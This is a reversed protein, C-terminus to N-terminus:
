GNEWRKKIYKYNRVQGIFLHAKIRMRSIAVYLLRYFTDFDMPRRYGNYSNPKIKTQANIDTVDIFVEDITQGQAKHITSAYIHKLRIMKDKVRWYEEVGNNAAENLLEQEVSKSRPVFIHHLIGEDDVLTVKWGLETQTGERVELVDGNKNKGLPKDIMVLDGSIFSVNNQQQAISHNYKDVVANTYALIRKSNSCKHYAQAFSKFDKYLIINSPIDNMLTAKKGEKIATRVKYLFDKLDQDDDKQRMQETLTIIYDPELEARQNVAPLQLEDGVLLIKKYPEAILTNYVRQELMSVEDVVILDAKLPERVKSLRLDYDQKTMIYGLASHTTHAEMGTAEQLLAKAKNTTATILVTGPYNKIIEIVTTSKGVGSSGRLLIVRHSGNMVEDFAEKQKKNLTM